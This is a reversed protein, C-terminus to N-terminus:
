NGRANLYGWRQEAGIHETAQRLVADPYGFSTPLSVKLWDQMCLPRRGYIPMQGLICGAAEGEM